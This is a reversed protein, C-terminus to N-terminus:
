KIGLAQKLLNIIQTLVAVQQNLIAKVRSASTAPYPVIFPAPDICGMYGNDYDTNAWTWNSEDWLQPKLGFHLHDGTSFGTSDAYGILDGTKVSDGTKVVADDQILHWYITKFYVQQGNYDFPQNTRIVVGNGGKSDIEPYCVGDHAAYVPQGHYAQLDLGNHGAINIGNARYYDGNVGFVQLVNYPAVPQFLELKM